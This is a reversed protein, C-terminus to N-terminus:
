STRRQKLYDAYESNLIERSREATDTPEASSLGAEIAMKAFDALTAGKRRSIDFNDLMACILEEITQNREQALKELHLGVEDSVEINMTPTGKTALKGVKAWM